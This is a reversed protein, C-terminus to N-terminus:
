RAQGRSGKARRHRQVLRLMEEVSVAELSDVVLDAGLLDEAPWTSAVALCAMGARRAAEVGAVADEVVLCRDVPMGLKEAAKLFVEPDPKGRSVDEAAVFETLPLHLRSLIEEINARPTSSAVIQPIGTAALEKVLREVGPMLPIREPLLDRFYREKREALRQMEAEDTGHLWRRLIDLNRMGFTARHEDESIKRGHEAMLRRWAEFHYRSTDVLVGDLDWLVAFPPQM